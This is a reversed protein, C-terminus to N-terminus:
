ANEDTMEEDKVIRYHPCMYDHMKKLRLWVRKFFGPGPHAARHEEAREGISEIVGGAYEVAHEGAYVVAPKIAYSWAKTFLWLFGIVVAVGIVFGTYSLVGFLYAPWVTLVAIVSGYVIAHLTLVIPAWVLNTRWMPCKNVGYKEYQWADDQCDGGMFEDYIALSWFFWRIRWDNQSIENM